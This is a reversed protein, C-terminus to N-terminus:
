PTGGTIGAMASGRAGAEFSAEGASQAAPLSAQQQMQVDGTEAQQIDVDTLLRNVIAAVLEQKKAALAVDAADAEGDGLAVDIQYIQRALETLENDFLEPLGVINLPEVLMRALAESRRRDASFIPLLVEAAQRRLSIEEERTRPESEGVTCDFNLELDAWMDAHFQAWKKQAGPVARREYWIPLRQRNKVMLGFMKLLEVFYWRGLARAYNRRRELGRQQGLSETASNSEAQGGRDGPGQGIVQWIIQLNHRIGELHRLEKLEHQPVLYLVDKPTVEEGLGAAVGPATFADRDLEIIEFNKDSDELRRQAEPDLAGKRTLYKNLVHRNAKIFLSDLRQINFLQPKILRLDPVGAFGSIGAEDESERNRAVYICPFQDAEAFEVPWDNSVAAGDGMVFEAGLPKYFIKKEPRAWIERFPIRIYKPDQETGGYMAAYRVQQTHYGQQFASTRYFGLLRAKDEESYRRDNLAQDLTQWYDVSVWMHDSLNWDKGDPDFRVRWPSIRRVLPEQRKAVIEMEQSGDENVFGGRRPREYSEQLYAVWLFGFGAWWQDQMAEKMYRESESKKMLAKFVDSLIYGLDENGSKLDQVFPDPNSFYTDAVFTQQIAFALAVHTGYTEILKRFGTLLQQNENWDYSYDRFYADSAKERDRWKRGEDNELRLKGIPYQQALMKLADVTM